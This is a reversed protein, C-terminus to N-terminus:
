FYNLGNYKEYQKNITQGYKEIFLRKAIENRDNKTDVPITPVFERGSVANSM